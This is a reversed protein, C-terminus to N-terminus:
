VVDSCNGLGAMRFLDVVRQEQAEPRAWALM